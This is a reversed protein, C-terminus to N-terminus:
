SISIQLSFLLTLYHCNLVLLLHLNKTYFYLKHTNTGCLDNLGQIKRKWSGLVIHVWGRRGNQEESGEGRAKILEMFVLDEMPFGWSFLLRKSVIATMLLLNGTRIPFSYPNGPPESPLSDAMHSFQNWDRPQSSGRSFPMAIWELIRAQLIGMSLPAQSAVTWPTATM